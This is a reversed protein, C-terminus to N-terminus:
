YIRNKFTKYLGIGFCVIAIIGLIASWDAAIFINGFLCIMGVIYLISSNKNDKEASQPKPLIDKKTKNAKKQAM